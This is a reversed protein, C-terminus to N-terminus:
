APSFSDIFFTEHYFCHQWRSVERSPLKNLGGVKGNKVDCHHQEAGRGSKKEADEKARRLEDPSLDDLWELEYSNFIRGMIKRVVVLALIQFPPKLYMFIKM